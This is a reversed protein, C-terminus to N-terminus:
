SPAPESGPRMKSWGPSLASALTLKVPFRPEPQNRRPM